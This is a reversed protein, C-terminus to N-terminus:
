VSAEDRLASRKKPDWCTFKSKMCIDLYRKRSVESNRAELAIGVVILLISLLFENGVTTMLLQGIQKVRSKSFFRLFFSLFIKCKLIQPAM